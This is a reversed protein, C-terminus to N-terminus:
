RGRAADFCQQEAHARAANLVQAREEPLTCDPADDPANRVCASAWYVDHIMGVNQLCWELTRRAPTGRAPLAQAAAVDAPAAHPRGSALDVCAHLVALGGLLMAAASEPRDLARM